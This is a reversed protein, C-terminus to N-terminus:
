LKLGKLVDDVSRQVYRSSVKTQAPGDVGTRVGSLDLELGIPKNHHLTQLKMFLPFTQKGIKEFQGYKWTLHSKGSDSASQVLLEEVREGKPQAYFTYNLKRTDTLKLQARGNVKDYSFRDLHQAVEAQGPVFLENWFLAQVANFDLEAQRLFNVEKYSVRVYQKHVRDVVLVEQPTFELIGLEMGIFRLSLRVVEDRKMFLKGNVGLDKGVGTLKVRANASLGRSELRNEAVKRIFAADAKSTKHKDKASSQETEAQGPWTERSAHRSSRCGVLLVAVVLLLLYRNM